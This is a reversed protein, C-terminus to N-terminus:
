PHTEPRNLEIRVREIKIARGSEPNAEVIAGCLWPDGSATEFKRGRRTLFKEVIIEKKVGIVSDYPGTMGADTLFATGGPLIREDGTQVHTHTGIVATARGDFHAGMAVKESTAEAHIDVFVFPTIKSIEAFIRDAAQFPCDLAEMFTRGMVNIVGLKKGSSTTHIVWGKGANTSPYNAPRLCDTENQFVPLGEKKDFSHNGGTQIDVGAQSIELYTEPTVGWGGAMNENNAIVIDLSYKARLKPVFQKVMKRGPEGVIDGIFLFKM